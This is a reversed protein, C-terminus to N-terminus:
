PQPVTVRIVTNAGTMVPRVPEIPDTAEMKLDIERNFDTLDTANEAIKAVTMQTEWEGLYGLHKNNSRETARKGTNMDRPYYDRIIYTGYSLGNRNFRVVVGFDTPLWPGKRYNDETRPTTSDGGWIELRGM